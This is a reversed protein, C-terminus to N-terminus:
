HACLVPDQIAPLDRDAAADDHGDVDGGNRRDHRDGPVAPRDPLRDRLRPAIGLDHFVPDPHASRRETDPRDAPHKAAAIDEFLRLDAQRTQTLMFERFPTPSRPIPRAQTIKNEVLPQVGNQWAKDFTPAMVFFTMFLALSILILNAPTSQLGLGSRLFSFAIVFRTFSTAMMLIGPAISLVTLMALMQIIQGSTSASGQPILGDLLSPTQAMATGGFALLLLPTLLRLKM